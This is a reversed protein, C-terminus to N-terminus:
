GGLTVTGVSGRTTLGLSAMQAATRSRGSVPGSVVPDGQGVQIELPTDGLGFITIKRNKGTPNTLDLCFGRPGDVLPALDADRTPDQELWATDYYVRMVVDRSSLQIYGLNMPM